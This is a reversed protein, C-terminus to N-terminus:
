RNIKQNHAALQQVLHGLGGQSLSSAFQARYNEIISVNEITFDNVLWRGTSKSMFYTISIQQGNKRKIVSQVTAVGRSQWATTRLPYVAVVDDDYSALAVSYNAIVLQKFEKVFAAREASSAKKWYYRGIVAQSMYTVNVIPVIIENVQAYIFQDARSSKLTAKNQSLKKVLRNAVGQIINVPSDTTKAVCNFSFIILAFSIFRILCYKRM